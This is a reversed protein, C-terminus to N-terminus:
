ASHAIREPLTVVAYYRGVDQWGHTQGEAQLAMGPVILTEEFPDDALTADLHMTVSWNRMPLWLRDSSISM